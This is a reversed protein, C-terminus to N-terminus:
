EGLRTSISEPYGSPGRCGVSRRGKKKMATACAVVREYALGKDSFAFAGGREGFALSFLVFAAFGGVLQGLSGAAFVFAETRAIRFRGVVWAGVRGLGRGKQQRGCSLAAMPQTEAAGPRSFTRRVHQQPDGAVAHMAVDACRHAADYIEVRM